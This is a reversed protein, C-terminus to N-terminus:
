SSRSFRRGAWVEYLIQAVVMSGNRMISMKSEGGIRKPEDGPIDKVTLGLKAARISGGVEWTNLLDYRMNLWSEESLKDLGMRLVAARRYARFVGLADTFRIGFLLSILRSFFYNGIGTLIGDDYSRAPPLYRSVCVIDYGSRAEAILVPILEPICNGDPSFCIFIDGTSARFAQRYASVVGQREEPRVDVGRERLYEVTGDTSGGDIVILESYWERRIRPLIIKLGEIENRTPMFITVTLQCGGDSSFASTPINM